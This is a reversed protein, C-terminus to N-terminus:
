YSRKDHEQYPGKCDRGNKKSKKNGSLYSISVNNGEIKVSAGPMAFLKSVAGKPGEFSLTKATYSGTVGAPLEVIEDKKKTEM